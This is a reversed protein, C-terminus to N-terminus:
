GRYGNIDNVMRGLLSTLQQREATTWGALAGEFWVRVAATYRDVLEQGAPTLAVRRARRDGDDVVRRVLGRGELANLHRTAHPGEVQMQTAIEGVRLAGDAGDLIILITMAPREMTLGTTGMITDYLRGRNFVNALQFLRPFLGTDIDDPETM